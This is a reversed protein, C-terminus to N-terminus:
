DVNIAADVEGSTKTFSVVATGAYRNGSASDYATRYIFYTGCSLNTLHIHDEGADGLYVKDYDSPSTGPSTTANFKVLASDTHSAPNILTDGNHLAFVVIDVNGSGSANCTPDDESKKCSAATIISVTIILALAGNLINKM